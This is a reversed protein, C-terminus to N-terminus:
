TVCTVHGHWGGTNAILAGLSAVTIVIEALRYKAWSEGTIAVIEALM